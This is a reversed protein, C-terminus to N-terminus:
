NFVVRKGKWGGKKSKRNKRCHPRRKHGRKTTHPRVGHYGAECMYKGTGAHYKLPAKKVSRKAMRDKQQCM